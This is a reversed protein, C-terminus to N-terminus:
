RHDKEKTHTKIPQETNGHDMSLANGDILLIPAEAMKGMNM